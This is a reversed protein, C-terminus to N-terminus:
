NSFLGDVSEVGPGDKDIHQPFEEGFHKRLNPEDIYHVVTQEGVNTRCSEQGM